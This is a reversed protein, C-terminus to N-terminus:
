VSPSSMYNFSELFANGWVRQGNITGSLTASGEYWGPFLGFAKHVEQEDVVSEITLDVERSPAVLQVKRAYQIGTRPSVYSDLPIISWDGPETLKHHACSPPPGFEEWDHIAHSDDEKFRIDFALITRLSHECEIKEGNEDLCGMIQINVHREQYKNTLDPINVGWEREAWATGVVHYAEGDMVVDGESSMMPRAWYYKWLPSYGDTFPYSPSKISEDQVQLAISEDDAFFSVSESGGSGVVEGILLSPNDVPVLSWDDMVELVETEDPGGIFLDQENTTQPFQGPAFYVHNRYVGDLGLFGTVLARVWGLEYNEFPSPIYVAVFMMFGELKVPECCEYGHHKHECCEHGHHKHGGCEHGRHKHGGCEHGRHKHGGCKHKCCCNKPYAEWSWTKWMSEVAGWPDTWNVKDPDGKWQNPYHFADDEPLSINASEPHPDFVCLNEDDSAAADRAGSSVMVVIGLVVCALKNLSMKEGKAISEVFLSDTTKISNM